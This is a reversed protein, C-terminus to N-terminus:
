GTWPTELPDQVTSPAGAEKEEMWCQRNDSDQLESKGRMVSGNLRRCVVKVDEMEKEVIAGGTSM